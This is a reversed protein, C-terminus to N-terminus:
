MEPCMAVRHTDPPAGEVTVKGLQPALDTEICSHSMEYRNHRDRM